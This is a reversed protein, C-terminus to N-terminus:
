VATAHGEADALGAPAPVIGPGAAAGATASKLAQEAAAQAAAAAAAADAAVQAAAKAAAALDALSPPNWAAVVKSFPALVQVRAGSAYVLIATPENRPLPLDYHPTGGQEVSVVQDLGYVQGKFDTITKV